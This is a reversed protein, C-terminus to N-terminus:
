VLGSSRRFGAARFLIGLCDRLGQSSECLTDRFYARACEFLDVAFVFPGKEGTLVLIILCPCGSAHKHTHTHFLHPSGRGCVGCGLVRDSSISSCLAEANHVRINFSLSPIVGMGERCIRACSRLHSILLRVEGIRFADRSHQGKQWDDRVAAKILARLWASDGAKCMMEANVLLGSFLHVRRGRCTRWAGVTYM